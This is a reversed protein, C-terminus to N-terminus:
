WRRESPAKERLVDLYLRDVKQVMSDTGYQVALTRGKDGMRRRMDPDSILMELERALARHDAPPVLVGNEGHYVLDPIGGVNSAVIPRGAAMAEVLVRGMGENLSPLVFIDLLPLIEHIDDRWGLFWVKESVGMRAAERKLEGELEGKGAYVLSVQPYRKWVEAMARLLYIPGKIPLLWGVTGVVLEGQDLGLFKRKERINVQAQMYYGVDVGSHITVIKKPDCVSLAIYDNREGETLTIMRNMIFCTLKEIIIIFRTVFPKFHGYFVHGHPTHIIIPVGSIKAAWCGLIGAKYSHTHVIIPKENILLRRLFLFARLDHLPSTRRVLSPIVIVRVGGREAKRIRAYVADKELDTMKSELSLGYALVIEYKDKLGDCTLLTNQASGGMDMRTIIHVIKIGTKIDSPHRLTSQASGHEEFLKETSDINREWSYNAEVFARCRATVDRRLPDNNRFRRCTEIILFAMSGPKTDKFLYRTDLKGLIEVTGGVPTGLVPVGSALAELTILGFGELEVTPLIFLDAMRYYDPLDDEAIFGAFRVAGDIRLRRSLSILGDRLPGHGGIVLYSDPLEGIVKEFAHLLNELGMRPELDRITLLIIKDEPINLRRRILIRDDAPSFRRLDVGGPIIVIKRTPVGYISRLRERTFRSLVIIGESANLVKREILRRSHVNFPYLLRGIFDKPRPNRSQFEEFSLSHCTYVKRVQRSAHSRMVGLASLPQHFNLWDYSFTEQLEEYRKKCNVLISRLFCLGNRRNVDYRWETVGHILEHNARHWPLRRTLIHVHHGRKRLLTSQEFLVRESGSSPNSISVDAVFLIRL